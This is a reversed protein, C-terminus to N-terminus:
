SSAAFAPPARPDAVLARCDEEDPNDSEGDLHPANGEVPRRRRRDRNRCPSQEDRRCQERGCSGRVVVRTHPHHNNGCGHEHSDDPPDRGRGTTGTSMTTSPDTATVRTSRLSQMIILHAEDGTSTAKLSSVVIFLALVSLAAGGATRRGLASPPDLAPLDRGPRRDDRHSRALALVV